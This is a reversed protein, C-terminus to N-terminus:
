PPQEREVGDEQSDKPFALKARINWLIARSASSLFVCRLIRQEGSDRATDTIRGREGNSEICHTGRDKGRVFPWMKIV